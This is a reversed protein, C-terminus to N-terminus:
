WTSSRLITSPLIGHLPRAVVTSGQRPGVSLVRAAPQSRHPPAHVNQVRERVSCGRLSCAYLAPPTSVGGVFINFIQSKLM